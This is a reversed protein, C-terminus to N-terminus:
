SAAVTLTLYLESVLKVGDPLVLDEPTLYYVGPEHGPIIVGITEVNKLVAVKGSVQLVGTSLTYTYGEQPVMVQLTLYDTDETNMVGFWVVAALLICVIAAILNVHFGTHPVAHLEDQESGQENQLKEKHKM